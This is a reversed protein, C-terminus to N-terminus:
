HPFCGIMIKKRQSSRKMPSTILITNIYTERIELNGTGSKATCLYPKMLKRKQYKSVADKLEVTVTFKGETQLLDRVRDIRFPRCLGHIDTYNIEYANTDNPNASKREQYSDWTYTGAILKVRYSIKVSYDCPTLRQLYMRFHGLQGVSDLKPQIVVNWEYNSYFFSPTEIKADIPQRNSTPQMVHAYQPNVLQQSLQVETIYSISLNKIELECQINGREDMYEVSCLRNVSTFSKRGHLTIKNTFKCNKETFSENRTFHERCLLAISLDLTM